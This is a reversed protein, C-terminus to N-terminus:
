PPPPPPCLGAAAVMVPEPPQEVQRGSRDFILGDQEFLGSPYQEAFPRSRDLRTM